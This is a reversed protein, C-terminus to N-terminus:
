VYWLGKSCNYYQIGSLSQSGQRMSRCWVTPRPLAILGRPTDTYVPSRGQWIEGFGGATLPTTGYMELGTLTLYTPHLGSRKSLLLIAQLAGRAIGNEM